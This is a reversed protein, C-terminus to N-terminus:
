PIPLMKLFPNQSFFDESHLLFDDKSASKFLWKPLKQIFTFNFRLLLFILPAFIPFFQFSQPFNSDLNNLIIVVFKSKNKITSRNKRLKKKLEGFFNKHFLLFPSLSSGKFLNKQVKKKSFFRQQFKKRQDTFFIRKTKETLNM